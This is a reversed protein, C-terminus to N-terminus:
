GDANRWLHNLREQALLAEGVDAVHVHGFGVVDRAHDGVHDSVTRDIEASGENGIHNDAHISPCWYRDQSPQMTTAEFKQASLTNVPNGVQFSSRDSCCNLCIPVEEDDQGAQDAQVGIFVDAPNETRGWHFQKLFPFYVREKSERGYELLHALAMNAIGDCAWYRVM